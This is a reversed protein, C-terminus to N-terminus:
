IKWFLKSVKDLYYSNRGIGVKVWVFEVLSFLVGVDIIMCMNGM